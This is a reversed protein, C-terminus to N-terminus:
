KLPAGPSRKQWDPFWASAAGSPLWTRAAAPPLRMSCVRRRVPLRCRLDIAAGALEPHELFLVKALGCLPAQAVGDLEPPKAAETAGRTILWIRSPKEARRAAAQAIGLLLPACRSDDLGKMFVIRDFSGADLSEAGEGFVCRITRAEAFKALNEAMGRRDRVILWAEGEAAIPPAPPGQEWDVRYFWDPPSAKANRRGALPYHQRQFSLEPTEETRVAENTEPPEEVIAHANTGSFGFASLGAIRRTGGRKWEVPAAAVRVPIENWPIHPNPERFHLSAPIRGHQFALLIKILGAMGSAPELHGINTKVSGTWLAAERDRGRGYASAM